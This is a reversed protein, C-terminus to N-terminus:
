QSLSRNLPQMEISLPTIVRQTFLRLVGSKSHSLHSAPVQSWWFKLIKLSILIAQTRSSLPRRQITEAKILVRSFEAQDTGGSSRNLFIPESIETNAAISLVAGTKTFERVRNVIADDTETLASIEESKFTVGAPLASKAALSNRLVPKASGDHLGGLRKLPTFRWAEERGTPTHKELLNSQLTTM